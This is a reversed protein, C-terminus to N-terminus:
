GATAREENGVTRLRPRNFGSPNKAFGIRSLLTGLFSSVLRAIDVHCRHFQNPDNSTVYMVFCVLGSSIVPVAVLSRVGCGFEHTPRNETLHGHTDRVLVSKKLRQVVGGLCNDVRYRPVPDGDASVPATEADPPGNVSRSWLVRALYRPNVFDVEGSKTLPLLLRVSADKVGLVKFADAAMTLCDVMVSSFADRNQFSTPNEGAFRDQISQNMQWLPFPVERFHAQTEQYIRLARWASVLLVSLGVFASAGAALPLLRGDAYSEYLRDRARAVWSTSALHDAMVAYTLGLISAISGVTAIVAALKVRKRPLRRRLDEASERCFGPQTEAFEQYNPPSVRRRLFGPRSLRGLMATNM